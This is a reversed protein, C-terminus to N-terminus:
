DEFANLTHRRKTISRLFPYVENCTVVRETWLEHIRGDCAMSTMGHSLRLVVYEDLMVVRRGVEM